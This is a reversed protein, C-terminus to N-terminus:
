SRMTTSACGPTLRLQRRRIRLRGKATHRGLNPVASDIKLPLSNAGDVDKELKLYTSYTLEM